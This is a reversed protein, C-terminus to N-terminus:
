GDRLDPFHTPCIITKRINFAKGVSFAWRIGMDWFQIITQFASGTPALQSPALYPAAIIKVRFHITGNKFVRPPIRIHYEDVKDPKRGDHMIYYIGGRCDMEWVFHTTYIRNGRSSFGMMIFSM